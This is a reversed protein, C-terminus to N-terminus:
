GESAGPFLKKNLRNHRWLGIGVGDLMDERDAKTQPTLVGREADTLKSEIRELMAKKELQGKWDSPFVHTIIAKGPHYLSIATAVASGVGVLDLTDNPDGKQHVTGYIRPMEILVEFDEKVKYGRWTAVEIGLPVYTKYGRGELVPNKVYDAAILDKGFFLAVGCGRLNPDICLMYHKDAM